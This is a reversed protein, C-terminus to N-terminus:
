AVRRGIAVVNSAPEEFDEEDPDDDPGGGVLDCLIMIARAQNESHKRLDQMEWYLIIPWVLLWVVCTMILFSVVCAALFGMM